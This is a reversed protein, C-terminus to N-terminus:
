NYVVEGNNLVVIGEYNVISVWKLGNSNASEPVLFDGNTGVSHIDPTDDATATILDGKAEMFSKNITDAPDGSLGELNIEDVGDNEHRTNHKETKVPIPPTPLFDVM